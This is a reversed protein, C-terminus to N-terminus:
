TQKIQNIYDEGYADCLRQYITEDGDNHNALLLYVNKGNHRGYVIWEGTLKIHMKKVKYADTLDDHLRVDDFGRSKLQKLFPNLINQLTSHAGVERYHKHWLGKLPEYNYLGALKIGDKNQEIGELNKIENSINQYCNIGVRYVDNLFQENLKLDNFIDETLNMKLIGIMLEKSNTCM